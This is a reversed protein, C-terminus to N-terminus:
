KKFTKQAIILGDILTDVDSATSYVGFSLRVTAPVKLSEIHLPMACHNGARVCVNKETDLIAAIDHPHIDSLTFSMVGTRTTDDSPGYLTIAGGFTANLKERAHAILSQEHRHIADFGIANIFTFAAGLGIVGAINPTGAELRHPLATFTTTETSVQEIMEGGTLLPECKELLAKKGWLVGVGTPGYAKHASFALFDCDLDEVDIPIHSAAQAADIIVLITPNIVRAKAILSKLPNVTGLVNSVYPLALIQTRDTIKDIFDGKDIHGDQTVAIVDFAAGTRQACQQWPVFNAHHDMATVVIGDKDSLTHSIGHAVMNISATTGSTFIIEERVDANIFTKVADRVSEYESTAKESLAYIGRSVNANYTHYYDDMADTVTRPTLATAATDLYVLQPLATFIPFNGRITSIDITSM